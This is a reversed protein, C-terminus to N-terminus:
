LGQAHVESKASSTRLTTVSSSPASSASPEGGRRPPPRSRLSHRCPAKKTTGPSKFSTKLAQASPKLSTTSPAPLLPIMIVPLEPQREKIQPLWNLAARAPCPSTSCSLFRLNNSEIMRLGEEGDAAMAASYGELSLLVELSERISPKTTSHRPHQCSVGSAPLQRQRIFGPGARELPLEVEPM